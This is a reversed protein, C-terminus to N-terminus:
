HWTGKATHIYALFTCVRMPEQARGWMETYEACGNKVEGAEVDMGVMSQPHCSNQPSTSIVPALFDDCPFHCILQMQALTRHKGYINWQRM